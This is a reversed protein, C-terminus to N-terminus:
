LGLAKRDSADGGEKTLRRINKPEPNNQNNAGSTEKLKPNKHGQNGSLAGFSSIVSTAFDSYTYVGGDTKIARKTGDADWLEPAGDNSVVIKWGRQEAQDQIERVVSKRATDTLRPEMFTVSRDIEKALLKAQYEKELRAVRADAEQYKANAEKVQTAAVQKVSAVYESESMKSKTEEKAKVGNLVNEIVKNFDHPKGDDEFLPPIEDPEFGANPLKARITGGWERDRQSAIVNIVDPNKIALAVTTINKAVAEAIPAPVELEIASLREIFQRSEDDSTNAGALGIHQITLEGLNM